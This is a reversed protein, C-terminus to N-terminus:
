RQVGPLSALFADLSAQQSAALPPMPVIPLDAPAPAPAAKKVAAAAKKPAKARPPDVKTARKKARRKARGKATPRPPQVLRPRQYLATMIPHAEDVDHDDFVIGLACAADDAQITLRRETGDADTFHIQYRPM